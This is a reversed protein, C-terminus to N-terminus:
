QKELCRLEFISWLAPKGGMAGTRLAAIIDSCFKHVNHQNSSQKASEKLTPRSVKLQAIRAKAGWHKFREKRHKQALLQSHASLEVASLYGVRRGAATGRSGRKEVAREERGVRLRFDSEDVISECMNCTFNPFPKTSSSFRRCSRHRFTGKM